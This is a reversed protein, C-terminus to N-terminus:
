YFNIPTPFRFYGFGRHGPFISILKSHIFQVIGELENFISCYLPM